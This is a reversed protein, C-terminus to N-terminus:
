VRELVCLREALAPSDNVVRGDIEVWAHSLFPKARYGITLQGPIGFCRLLRTTVTSRQLCRVPRWYLSSATTVAEVIRSTLDRDPWVSVAVCKRRSLSSHVRHFGFLAMQLDYAVLERLACAILRLRSITRPASEGVVLKQAILEQVFKEIENRSQQTDTATNGPIDDVVAQPFSGDELSKWVNARPGECLYLRGEKTDLIVVVDDTISARVHSAVRYKSHSFANPQGTNPKM